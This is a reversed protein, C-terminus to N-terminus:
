AARMRSECDTESAETDLRFTNRWILHIALMLGGPPVPLVAKGDTWRLLKTGEQEAAWWGDSLSPHDVPLECVGNTCSLVIRGIAVGLQRRENVWPFVECPVASRSM